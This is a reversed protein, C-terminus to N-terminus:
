RREDGTKGDITEAIEVFEKEFDEKALWNTKEGDIVKFGERFDSRRFGDIRNKEDEFLFAMAIM